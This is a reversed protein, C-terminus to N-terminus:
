LIKEGDFVIVGYGHGAKGCSCLWKKYAKQLSTKEPLEAYPLDSYKGYVRWGNGFRDSEEYDILEFDDMFRLINSNAPLFERHRPYLLWSSCVFLVPGGDFADKLQAFARKYSDLRVEDTLPIGSSPIHFNVLPMDEKLVIGSRTTFSEERNYETMEYQFRGYAFRELKFFGNYWGPVFTGPVEECEMCELLKCRLDDMTDWYIDEGIGRVRYRCLLEETNNLLLVENLTYENEGFEQAVQKVKEWIDDGNNESSMYSHVLSDFKEAFAANEDLRKEVATFAQMAEGPFNLRQMLTSIHATLHNM